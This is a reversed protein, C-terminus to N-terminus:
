IATAFEQTIFPRIVINYWQTAFRVTQKSSLAQLLMLGQHWAHSCSYQASIHGPVLSGPPQHQSFQHPSISPARRMM